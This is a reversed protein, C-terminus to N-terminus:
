RLCNTSASASYPTRGADLPEAPLYPSTEHQPAVQSIQESLITLGGQRQRVEPIGEGQVRVVCPSPLQQPLCRIRLAARGPVYSVM